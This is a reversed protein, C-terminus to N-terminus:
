PARELGAVAELVRVVPPGALAPGLRASMAQFRDTSGHARLADKSAWTELMVLAEPDRRVRYFDYRLCGEEARTAALEGSVIAVIEEGRGPLAEFTAVVEIPASM